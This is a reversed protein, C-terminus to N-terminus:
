AEKQKDEKAKRRRERALQKKYAKEDEISKLTYAIGEKVASLSADDVVKVSSPAQKLSAGGTQYTKFSLNPIILEAILTGRRIKLRVLRSKGLKYEEYSENKFRRAGEVGNATKVIDDYYARIPSPLALYKEELTEKRLDFSVDSQPAPESEGKGEPGKGEAPKEAPVAVAEPEKAEPADAPGEEEMPEQPAPGPAAEEPKGKAKGEREEKKEKIEDKVVIYGILVTLLAVLAILVYVVVTM